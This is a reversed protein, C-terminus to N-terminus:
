GRTYSEFSALDNLVTRAADQTIAGDKIMDALCRELPLMGERRSSQLISPIQATKGERVATAVAHTGRLVELAPVRGGGRARPLLRQAVIARLSDALQM